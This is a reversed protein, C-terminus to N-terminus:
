TTRPTARWTCCAPRIDSVEALRGMPIQTLWEHNLHALAESEIPIQTLWEDKLHALAESEILPTRVIGPSIANVRVGYPAWEAALSTRQAGEVLPCGGAGGRGQLRFRDLIPHDESFPARNMAPDNM